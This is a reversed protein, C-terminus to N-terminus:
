DEGRLAEISRFRDIGAPITATATTMAPQELPVGRDAGVWVLEDFEDAVWVLEAAGDEGWADEGEACAAGGSADVQRSM